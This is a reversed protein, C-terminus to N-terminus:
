ATTAITWAGWLVLVLGALKAIHPGRTAAKELLRAVHSRHTKAAESMPLSPGGGISEFFYQVRWTSDDTAPDPEHLQFSLLYPFAADRLLPRQWQSLDSSFNELAKQGGPV